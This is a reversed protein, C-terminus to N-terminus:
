YVVRASYVKVFGITGDEFAPKAFTKARAAVAAQGFVVVPNTSAIVFKARKEVRNGRIQGPEESVGSVYLSEFM